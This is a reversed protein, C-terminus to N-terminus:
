FVEFTFLRTLRGDDFGSGFVSDVAHFYNGKYLVLRNYRMPLTFLRQWKERMAALDSFAREGAIPTETCLFSKFDAYGAERVAEEAPRKRWGTARHQWFSTGGRCHEPRTLYLVAAYRTTEVAKEDDIHIDTRACADALTLRVVGNDPSAWKIRRGLRDAIAQMIDDCRVPGTQAGPYNGNRVTYALDAAWARVADPDPLFDDFLHVDAGSLVERLETDDLGPAVDLQVRADGHATAAAPLAFGIYSENLVAPQVAYLAEFRDRALELANHRYAMRAQALLTPAYATDADHAAQLVALAEDVAGRRELVRALAEAAGKAPLAARYQIEAETHKGGQEYLMGLDAHLQPWGPGAALARVLMTRGMEAMGQRVMAMGLGHLAPAYQGDAALAQQFAAAAERVRNQRMYGVGQEVWQQAKSM